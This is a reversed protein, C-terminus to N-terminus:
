PVEMVTVRTQSGYECRQIRAESLQNRISSKTTKRQLQTAGNRPSRTSTEASEQHQVYWEVYESMVDADLPCALAGAGLIAEVNSVDFLKRDNLYPRYFRLQDDLKQDVLTFEASDDVFLPRTLGLIDTAGSWCDVLKPPASNALHYIGGNDTHRAIEVAARSVYDIPIFNVPTDGDALLRLPRFNLLTGLSRRVMSRTRQLGQVFGYLGSFTTAVHTHSHGIVISPRFIRTIEFGGDGVIREGAIKTREYHNNPTAADTVPCEAIVGRQDGAVYATSIHNFTPCDLAHALDVVNRTGQENHLSIEDALEDEFALSAAAHWVETVAPVDNPEVGATPRTIDGTVARCRALEADTLTTAYMAAGAHLARRLRASAHEGARPRVLCLLQADTNRLLELAIAGGVFGTVGTLLVTRGSTVSRVM